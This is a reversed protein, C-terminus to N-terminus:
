PEISSEKTQAGSLSGCDYSLINHHCYGGDLASSPNKKAMFHSSIFGQIIAYSM